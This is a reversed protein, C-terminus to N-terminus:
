IEAPFEWQDIFFSLSEGEEGWGIQIRDPHTAHAQWRYTVKYPLTGQQGRREILQSSSRQLRLQEGSASRLELYEPDTTEQGNGLLPLEVWHLLFRFLQRPELSMGTLQQFGASNAPVTIGASKEAMVMHITTADFTLQRAVQHFPGYIALRAKEDREGVLEIRHRRNNKPSEIEIIGAIRWFRLNHQQQTQAATFQQVSQQSLDAM